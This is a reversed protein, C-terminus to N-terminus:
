CVNPTTAHAYLLTGLEHEPRYKEHLQMEDFKRAIAKVHNIILDDLDM